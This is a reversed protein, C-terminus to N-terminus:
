QRPALMAGILSHMQETMEKGGRGFHTGELTGSTITVSPSPTSALAVFSLTVLVFVTVVFFTQSRMGKQKEKM